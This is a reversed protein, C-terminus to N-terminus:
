ARPPFPWSPPPKCWAIAFRGAACADGRGSGSRGAFQGVRAARSVGRPHGGAARRSYHLRRALHPGGGGIEAPLQYVESARRLQAMGQAYTVITAAYLASRLRGLMAAPDGQFARPPVALVRSAAEREAKLVSMDRMAVAVDITLVPVQLALADESTWMGTGKQRAEDLIVDILRKGPRRTWRAFSRRPSRSSIRTSNARTGSTMFTPWASRQRLGLGQKMFHYTESILRMLGYEIGNHVMKVYHGASGPGLYAVCPEGDVKAAVAELLPRVRQYAPRSGGPMISPGHRAGEEGGSIGVGLFDLGARGVAQRPPRHRRFAFQRRRDDRRRTRSPAAPRPDRCRGAARGAGAVDGRVRGGCCPPWNRPAQPRPVNRGAAETQLQRLKAADLDYGAAAFGHDAVNLLLNRGMVGLGVIGLEAQSNDM